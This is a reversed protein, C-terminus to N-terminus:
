GGQGHTEWEVSGSYQAKQHWRECYYVGEQSGVLDIALVFNKMLSDCLTSSGEPEPAM